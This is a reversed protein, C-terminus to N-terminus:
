EQSNNTKEQHSNKHAVISDLWAQFDEPTWRAVASQMAAVVEDFSQQGRTLQILPELWPKWEEPPDSGDLLDSVSRLREM